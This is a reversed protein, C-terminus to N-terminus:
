EPNGSFCCLKGVEGVSHCQAAPIHGPKCATCPQLVVLYNPVPSLVGSIIWCSSLFSGFAQLCIQCCPVTLLPDRILLLALPRCLHAHNSLLKEEQNSSKEEKIQYILVLVLCGINKSERYSGRFISKILICFFSQYTAAMDKGFYEKLCIFKCTILCQQPGMGDGKQFHSPVLQLSFLIVHLVTLTVLEAGTKGHIDKLLVM